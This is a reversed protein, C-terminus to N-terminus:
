TSSERFIRRINEDMDMHFARGMQERFLQLKTKTKM